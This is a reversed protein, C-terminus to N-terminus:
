GQTLDQGVRRAPSSTDAVFVVDLPDAKKEAESPPAGFFQDRKVYAVGAAALVAVAAALVLGVRWRSM